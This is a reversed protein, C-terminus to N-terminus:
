AGCRSSAGGREISGRCRTADGHGRRRGQQSSHLGRPRQQTSKQSPCRSGWCAPWSTSTKSRQTRNSVTSTSSTASPASCAQPRGCHMCKLCAVTCWWAHSGLAWVCLVMCHLVPLSCHVVSRAEGAGLGEARLEAKVRDKIADELRKDFAGSCVAVCCCCPLLVDALISSAQNVSSFDVASREGASAHATPSGAWLCMCAHLWGRVQAGGRNHHPQLGTRSM